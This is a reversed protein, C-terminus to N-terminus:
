LRTSPDPGALTQARGGCATRLKDLEERSDLARHLSERHADFQRMFINLQAAAATAVNTRAAGASAAAAPTMSLMADHLQRSLKLIFADLAKDDVGAHRVEHALVEREVCADASAERAVFLVRGAFGLHVDIKEATPCFSGDDGESLDANAEVGFVVKALAMGLLPYHRATVEPGALRHIEAVGVSTNRSIEGHVPTVTVDVEHVKPCALALAQNPQILVFSTLAVAFAALSLRGRAGAIVAVAAMLLVVGPASRCCSSKGAGVRDPPLPSM